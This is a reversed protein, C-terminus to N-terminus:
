TARRAREEGFESQDPARGTGRTHGRRRGPDVPPAAIQAAAAAATRDGPARLVFRARATEAPRAPLAGSARLCLQRSPADAAARPPPAPSSARGRPRARHATRTCPCPHQRQGDDLTRPLARPPFVAPIRLASWGAPIPRWPAAALGPPRSANFSRCSALPGEQERGRASNPSPAPGATALAPSGSRSSGTTDQGCKASM